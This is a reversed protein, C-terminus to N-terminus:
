PVVSGETGCTTLILLKPTAEQKTENRKTDGNRKRKVTETGPQGALCKRAKSPQLGSHVSLTATVVNRM